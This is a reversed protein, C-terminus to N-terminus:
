WRPGRQIEDVKPRVDVLYVAVAIVGFIGLFSVPGFLLMVLTSAAVIAIWVNKTLKDAATFADPRQRVAHVLAYAGVALGLVRLVDMVLGTLGFVVGINRGKGGSRRGRNTRFAFSHPGWM